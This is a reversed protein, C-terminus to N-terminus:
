GLALRETVTLPPFSVCEASDFVVEFPELEQAAFALAAVRNDDPIDTALTCHPIWVGPVYHARCKDLTPHDHIADHLKDLKSRDQPAAWLVLPSADFWAVRDFLIRIADVSAFAAKAARHLEAQDIEDYIAFTLHPPYNLMLMSPETEFKAAQHWLSVIREKTANRACISIAGGM